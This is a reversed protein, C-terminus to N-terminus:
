GRIEMTRNDTFNDFARFGCPEYGGSWVVLHIQHHKPNYTM